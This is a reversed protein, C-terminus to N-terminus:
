GMVGELSQKGQGVLRASDLEEVQLAAAFGFECTDSRM